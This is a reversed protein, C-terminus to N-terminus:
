AVEPFPFFIFCSCVFLCFVLFPAVLDRKLLCHLSIDFEFDLRQIANTGTTCYVWGGKRTKRGLLVLLSQFFM